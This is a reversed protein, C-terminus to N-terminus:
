KRTGSKKPQRAKRIGAKIADLPHARVESRSLRAYTLDSTHRYYREYAPEAADGLEDGLFGALQASWLRMEFDDDSLGAKEWSRLTEVSQGIGDAVLQLACYKKM